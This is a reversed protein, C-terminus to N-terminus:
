KEIVLDSYKNLTHSSVPNIDSTLKITYLYDNMKSVTKVNFLRVSCFNVKENFDSLIDRKVKGILAQMVQYKDRKTYDPHHGVRKSLNYSITVEYYASLITRKRSCISKISQPHLTLDNGLIFITEIKPCYVRYSTEIRVDEYEDILEQFCDIVDENSIYNTGFLDKIM